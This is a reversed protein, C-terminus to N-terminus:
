KRSLSCLPKDTRCWLLEAQKDSINVNFHPEYPPMLILDGEEAVDWEKHTEIRITGSKVYVFKETPHLLFGSSPIRQGPYLFALEALCSDTENEKGSILIRIPQLNEKGNLQHKKVVKM